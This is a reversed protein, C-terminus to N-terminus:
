ANDTVGSVVRGRGSLDNAVMISSFQNELMIRGLAATQRYDCEIALMGGSRLHSGAQRVIRRIIGLGDEDEDFLASEPEKRVEPSLGEQYKRCVYPPNTVIIDAERETVGAFLDSQVLSVDQHPILFDANRKATELASQSIDTLILKRVPISHAISIGICGTGTCLDIVCSDKSGELFKLATEVLTESDPRPILTAKTVIFDLGYFERHGTIYASPVHSARLRVLDMFAEASVDDVEDMYHIIQQARDYGFAKQALVFVELSTEEIGNELLLRQAETKLTALTM